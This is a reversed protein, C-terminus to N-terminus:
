YKKLLLQNFYLMFKTIHYLIIFYERKPFMFNCFTVHFLSIYFSNGYFQSDFVSKSDCIMLHNQICFSIGYKDRVWLVFIIMSWYLYVVFFDHTPIKYIILIGFIYPFNRFDVKLTNHLNNKALFACFYNCFNM